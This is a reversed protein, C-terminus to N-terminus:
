NETGNGYKKELEQMKAETRENRKNDLNEIGGEADIAKQEKYAGQGPKTPDYTDIVEADTRDRGDKKGRKAPSSQKTRGVYPKGSTTKDGQVRYIKGTNGKPGKGGGPTVLTQLTAVTKDHTSIDDDAIWMTLLDDAADVGIFALIGYSIDTALAAGPDHAYAGEPAPRVMGYQRDSTLSAFEISAYVPASGYNMSTGDGVPLPIHASPNGGPEHNPIDEGTTTVGELGELEIKWVPNNHAFQNTSISVYDASVPDIGFFRGMAPDGNRHRFTVWNLGLEEQREQGLYDYNHNRGRLAVNYGKHKLGFPYYNNEEVIEDQTILGNKNADKFSLRINGLHDKFQYIYKYGDAEKEVYGETHNFFQLNGNKYIYNSAYETTTVSSGETVIKKMKAGTANYIYNINGTHSSSVVTVTEPLNLHNYTISTIGKNRDIIMNGNADYEFDDNTNTGDKFGFDDNATDTVKKLKNGGNYTYALMDMNGFVTATTNTHGKRNLTLINGVKDYSVNSLDYKGDNSTASLIRNLHDYSYSYSRTINDNATRWSTKSINGNYLPNTGANYDIVFGFIDGNSTTGENISKLWGRINYKYDVDQLGGGVKKTILQGLADYSNEAITEEQGNISQTQKTVRGIHDYTFTDITVIAANSGKTHTTKSQVVRGTFDLQTEVIDTADLYDNKNVVYVPRGKGDYWTVITIWDDTGLVRVKSGTALSRTNSTVAQGFVNAPPTTIGTKDFSYDDYYNITLLELNNTPFANSSYSIKAGNVTTEAGRKEITVPDSTTNIETQITKRSRADTYKGTYAIRGHADYKTFLWTGDAELLADQSLIPRDQKDYVISELGKGPIKKEILRNRYDYKYQYCLEALEIDSVGDTITAKPSIVFSLNNYKDYVYYTDHAEGNNYNRKLVVQDQKDKYERTTHNDGDAPTWNEDKTISVYLENAAYYGNQYLEPKETDNNTFTVDFRVVENTNNQRWDFKITHDADSNPDAKWDKGPAGQELVRSLPSDEFVSESYANVQAPNTIGVFDAAYTDLYYQNIDATIDVTTYGGNNAKAFPLYEKAQRGIEDYEMHIIIDAETPSAKISTQQKPRGLGDFYTVTETVDKNFQIESPSEMATQYTRTFVYTETDSLNLTYPSYECGQNEGFVGPCNDTNNAVYGTPATCSTQIDVPDGFGDNDGDRYWKTNPHITPNNDNCDDGNLVYTYADAPPVSRYYKINPNGFTDNDGDRYFNKPAINTIYEDSDDHDDGNLVYTYQDVPAASRYYKISPNGYTDTDADRYFNKPAVNTIYEDNDNYDDGNLVYVYGDTPAASYYFRANPDGYTDADVDRYFNKPAINTIYETSDNRDNGNTVYTYGDGPPFSQYYKINPNGFTDNDADRYFNKPPINTIFENDDNIDDSTLVYGLPRGCQTKTISPNGRQDGDGDKYWVTNPNININGDDCDSNNTVYGSPRVSRYVRTAAAPSGYTDTDGDKYFYRPPINTIYENGDNIDDNNSVYGSPQTCQKKTSNRNGRGDRDADRYWVKNPNIAASGDNCDLNNTVYGGPRVSRYVRNNPNGFTDNDGDRYFYRPAIHTIHVNNDDRDDSYRVYGSPKTCQRKTPSTRGRGDGDVDRYWVTNPHISADGDNCDRKDLVYGTAPSTLWASNPNGFGDGDNDYYYRTDGDLGVGIQASAVFSCLLVLVTLIYKNNKM